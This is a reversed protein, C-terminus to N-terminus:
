YTYIDDIWEFIVIDNKDMYYFRAAYKEFAEEKSGALVIARFVDKPKRRGEKIRFCVRYLKM